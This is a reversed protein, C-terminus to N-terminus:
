RKRAYLAQIEACVPLATHQTVCNCASRDGVGSGVATQVVRVCNRIIYKSCVSRGPPFSKTSTVAIKAPAACRVGNLLKRCGYWCFTQLARHWLSSIRQRSCGSHHWSRELPPSICRTRRKQITKCVFLIPSGRMSLPITRSSACRGGNSGSAGSRGSSTHQIRSREIEHSTFWCQLVM